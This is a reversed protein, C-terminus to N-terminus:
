ERENEHVSGMAKLSPNRQSKGWCVKNKEETDAMGLAVDNLRSREFCGQKSTTPNLTPHTNTQHTFAQASTSLQHFNKLFFGCREREVEFLCCVVVQQREMKKEEKRRRKKKSPTLLSGAMGFNGTACVVSMTRSSASLSTAFDSNLM